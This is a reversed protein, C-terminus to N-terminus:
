SKKMYGNVFSKADMIKRGAPQLTDIILVSGDHCQIYMTYVNDICSSAEDPTAVHASIITCEIGAFIYKSKPFGSFARIELMLERASKKEPDLVSMSKDLKQCFTVHEKSQKVPNPLKNLNEFIWNAGAHALTSYIVEKDEPCAYDSKVLEPTKFQYYIPGADMEKVLKMVSVFFERDGRLIATEIPSPGRLDPLRSPHINLIGDPEFLELVDPKVIVGFSALIGHADSNESKIKKVEELDERTRAHFIIDCNPELIELAYDALPGNGFFIVKPKTM